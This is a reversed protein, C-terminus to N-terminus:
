GPPIPPAPGDDGNFDLDYFYTAYIPNYKALINFSRWANSDNGWTVIDNYFAAEQFFKALSSYAYETNM